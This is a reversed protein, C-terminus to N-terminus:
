KSWSYYSFIKGKRSGSSWMILFGLRGQSDVVPTTTMSFVGPIGFTYGKGLNNYSWLSKLALLYKFGTALQNYMAGATLTTTTKNPMTFKTLTAMNFYTKSFVGYTGRKLNDYAAVIVKSISNVKFTARGDFGTVAYTCWTGDDVYCYVGPLLTGNTTRVEVTMSYTTAPKLLSDKQFSQTTSLEDMDDKQCSNLALLTIFSIALLKLTTKM